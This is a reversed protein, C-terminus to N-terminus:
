SSPTSCNMNPISKYVFYFHQRNPRSHIEAKIWQPHTDAALQQSSDDTYLFLSYNEPDSVRFKLACLRCVEETTAYPQVQLTKATCGSDAKQLAVRMYNQFDDVSPLDRQLTRRQHWQHLTGRTASSLIRAAQEEQFNKILSMAGYASTLYYGGEGHLLPPDILEMMYLIETDLQPMDCQVLVYTLMPLFDDAGFMRVEHDQMINYILKCVKLLVMIKREPSYMRCMARLKRRIRLIAHADPPRAGNVGLEHPQKAKALTLNEQLRQWVGGAVQFDHLVSQLCGYLPKLVCKHMAKELMPDIQDEPMYSEIPPNMESSQKLYAKMQTMFQRITQLLDQSSSHCNKNEQVFSVYDQVLCGFYSTKDQSLEIIRLLIRKEPTALVSFVGRVKRFHGRLARPIVLSRPRAGVLEVTLLKKSIRSAHLRLHLDRELGVGYDDEEDDDYEDSSDDTSLGKGVSQSLGLPLPHPPSDLSDSSSTSLSRGSSSREKEEHGTWQQLITSSTPNLPTTNAQSLARSITEDDLAITCRYSDIDPAQPPRPPPNHRQSMRTIGASLPITKPGPSATPSHVLIRPPPPRPPPPPRSKGNKATPGKAIVTELNGTVDQQTKLFVPNIFSLASSSCSREGESINPCTDTLPLPVNLKGIPTCTQDEIQLVDSCNGHLSIPPRDQVLSSNPTSLTGQQKNLSSDWFAAGQQAVEHLDSLTEASHIAEPLKLTFPLIDRSICYFAVLRFLDAFSIGSGELSFTYQSEKVPIHIVSSDSSGDMHFSLVKKQLVSSKWVLFVGAPQQLLIGSAEQQDISLLLWIPHTHILKDLVSVSISTGDGDLVPYHLCLASMEGEIEIFMSIDPARDPDRDKEQAARVMQQELAGLSLAFADVLQLFSGSRDM